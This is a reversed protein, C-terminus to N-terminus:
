SVMECSRGVIAILHCSEEVLSLHGPEVFKGTTGPGGVEPEVVLKLWSLRLRAM